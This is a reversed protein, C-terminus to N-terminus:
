GSTASRILELAASGDSAVRCELGSNEVAAEVLARITSDDDAVVVRRKGTRSRPAQAPHGEATRSIAFDARLILDEAIWPSFLFDQASGHAPQERLVERLGIMLVPKNWQPIDIKSGIRLMVVDFPRVAEADPLAGTGLDRSFAQCNDLVKAVRAAEDAPFGILAFKKGALRAPASSSAAEQRESLLGLAVDVPVSEQSPTGGSYNIEQQHASRSAETSPPPSPQRASEEAAAFLRALKMLLASIRQTSGSGNQQLVGELERAALTIDPYGISGAAGAWRHAAVLAEKKDFGAGLKGALQKCQQMGEGVFEQRLEALYPEAPAAEPLAEDRDLYQRILMPFTRTDIPKTVYGDCGAEFARVEDGKMAFATVALVITDHTSPDCKLRRILDLGDMGPLQIDTLVIRPTFEKLVQLAEEATTATRVDFGQRTLLVRMVKLNVPTDEVILVSNNAM